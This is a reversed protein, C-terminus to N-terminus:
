EEGQEENPNFKITETPAEEMLEKNIQAYYLAEIEILTNKLIFYVAGIDLKSNKIAHNITDKFYQYDKIMM